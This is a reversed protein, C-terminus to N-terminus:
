HQTVNYVLTPLLDATLDYKAQCKEIDDVMQVLSTVYKVKNRCKTEVVNKIM